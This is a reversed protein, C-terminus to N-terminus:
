FAKCSKAPTAPYAPLADISSQTITRDAGIKALLDRGGAPTRTRMPSTYDVTYLGFKPCYGSQWEFNDTLAWYAYGRIDAGRQIAWGVEFLHEAIFRDRTTETPEQAVGNETIFIPLKFPKLQEIVEGFGVAYIDWGMATKPNKTTLGNQSPQHGLYPLSLAKGSTLSLGYYNLGIYDLRGVFDPSAKIDKPGDLKEDFDYDFDGTTVANLYWYNWFYTAHDAAAVDDPNSPDKAQYVRNHFAMSVLASKGDGDADMTDAAHIADYAKAHARIQQRQVEAMREADSAGPPWLGLVYGVTSQVGPENITVWWDIQGGWRTAIRKAYEAFVTVADDREWGQKEKPKSVDSLWTPFAFHNLTVMPAIGAAKLKKLLDDYKAVGDADPMDADFQARTPYLRALEISFRYAGLKADKMAQIDGDVHAFFDPGADPLDGNNVKGPLTAWVTWDNAALGKEAQEGASASAFLFGAPFTVSAPRAGPSYNPTVFPGHNSADGGAGAADSGGGGSAGAAGGQGAGAQGGTGSPTADTGSSSSSCSAILAPISLVALSALRRMM